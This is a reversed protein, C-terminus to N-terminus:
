CDESCFGPKVAGPMEAPKRRAYNRRNTRITAIAELFYEQTPRVGSGRAWDHAYLLKADEVAAKLDAGTFGRSAHALLATDVSSLPSPLNAVRESLIAQRATEDPLRTELWLEIRGSRVLAAPLSSVEMATMMVCIREASVSELGDLMTLLYRYIGAKNDGEFIVDADDIFIISPANRKAAESIKKIECYFNNTGAIMTGDILFFKSKLRHALARGITTKGTGPPGALLVGRKPKLGFEAAVRHEELPFAIKADLARIVDDVGRLDKWDVAAVEEIQVNSSLNRSVLYEIFRDSDFDQLSRMCSCANKLQHANLAPAFRHIRDYDLCEASIGLYTSCISQYDESTFEAIECTQARRSIPEPADEQVAFVFKRNGIAQELVATIAVNLLNPRPYSYGEVVSAILHMDDLLILDHEALSAELLHIWAEEIAFTGYAELERMFERLGLLIGGQDAQLRKLVTAKGRGIDGQLVVVDGCSIAHRVSEAATQQVPALIHNFAPVEAPSLCLEM